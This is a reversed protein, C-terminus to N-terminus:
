GPRRLLLFAWVSLAAAFGTIALYWPDTALAPNEVFMRSVHAIVTVAFIIGTFIVYLRM